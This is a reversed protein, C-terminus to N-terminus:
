FVLARRYKAPRTTKDAPVNLVLRAIQLSTHVSGKAYQVLLKNGAIRDYYSIAYDNDTLTLGFRSSVYPMHSSRILKLLDQISEKALFRYM